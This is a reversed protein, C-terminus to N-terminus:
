GRQHILCVNFTRNGFSIIDGHSVVGKEGSLEETTGDARQIKTGFESLQDLVQVEGQSSMRLIAHMPSVSEDQLLLQNGGSTSAESTIILRGVKLFHVDGNENSDFSVLFGVVPTEKVWAQQQPATPATHQPRMPASTEARPPEYSLKPTHQVTVNSSFGGNGGTLEPTTFGGAGEQALRARVQGTMEPTLMVTRNRARPAAGESGEQPAVDFPFKREEDM